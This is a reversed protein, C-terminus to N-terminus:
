RKLTFETYRLIETELLTKPHKAGNLMIGIQTIGAFQEGRKLPPNPPILEQVEM